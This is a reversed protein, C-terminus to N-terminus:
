WSAVLGVDPSTIHQDASCRGVAGRRIFLAAPPVDVTHFVRVPLQRVRNFNRAQDSADRLIWIWFQAVAGSAVSLHGMEHACQKRPVNPLTHHLLSALNTSSLSTLAGNCSLTPITVPPLRPM